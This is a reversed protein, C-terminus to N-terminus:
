KIIEEVAEATPVGATLLRPTVEALKLLQAGSFHRKGPLRRWEGNYPSKEPDNPDVMRRWGSSMSTVIEEPDFPNKRSYQLMACNGIRVSPDKDLDQWEHPLMREIDFRIAWMREGHTVAIIRKDSMERSLTSLFQKGTGILDPISEGNDYRTFFTSLEKRRMTDPFRTEREKLPTSGFLGWDREILRLEPLWTVSAGGIHAATEMTRIYPSVYREDFEAPDLGNARLWDGANKAQEVGLDTLHHMYDHRRYIEAAEEPTQGNKEAHQVVNAESQGHRVFVMEMPLRDEQSM